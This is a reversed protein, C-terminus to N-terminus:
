RNPNVRATARPRVNRSTAHWDFRAAAVAQRYGSVLGELVIVAGPLAHGQEDVVRGSVSGQIPIPAAALVCGLSCICVLQTSVKKLM